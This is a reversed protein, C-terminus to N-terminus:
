LCSSTFFVLKLFLLLLWSYRSVLCQENQTNQLRFLLLSTKSIALMPRGNIMHIQQMKHHIDMDSTELITESSGLLLDLCLSTECKFNLKTTKGSIMIFLYFLKPFSMTSRAELNLLLSLGCLVVEVPMVRM